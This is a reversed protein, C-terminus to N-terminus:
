LVQLRTRLSFKACGDRAFGSDIPSSGAWGQEFPMPSIRKQLGNENSAFDTQMRSSEAGQFRRGPLEFEQWDLYGFHKRVGNASM